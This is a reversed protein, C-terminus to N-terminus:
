DGSALVVDASCASRETDELVQAVRCLPTRIRKRLNNQLLPLCLNWQTACVSQLVPRDGERVADQLLQDLKGIEKLRAQLVSLLRNLDRSYCQCGM